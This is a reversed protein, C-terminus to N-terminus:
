PRKAGSADKLDWILATADQSGSALTRGHPGFVLATISSRHGQLRGREKGTATELVRITQDRSGFALMKGDPSFAVPGKSHGEIRWVRQGSAVDWLYIYGDAVCAAALTKGDPAFAVSPFGVVRTMNQNRPDYREGLQHLQRRHAVDWLRITNDQSGVALMRGDPSFALAMAAQGPEDLLGIKKGAAVDWIHIASFRERPFDPGTYTGVAVTTGDPSFAACSVWHPHDSLSRVKKGTTTDWLLVRKDGFGASQERRFPTAALWRGDHSLALVDGGVPLTRLHKGSSAEWLRLTQDLSGTALVRGEQVFHIFNVTARHEPFLLREAGTAVDWRRLKTEEPCAWPVGALVTQGVPLFVVNFVYSPLDIAPLQKGTATEWLRLSRDPYGPAAVLTKGDPSFALSQPPGKNGEVRRIERSAALDWLRITNDAAGFALLQWNPSFAAPYRVGSIRQIEKGTATQWIRVVPEQTALTAISTGDPSFSILQHGSLSRVEKGTSTDWLRIAFLSTALTKGDPSFSLAFVEDEHARILLRQEGTATDWVRVAGREDGYDIGSALLKGDPSLAIRRGGQFSRLEKGSAADWLRIIGDGSSALTKGDRSLAINFGNPHHLRVTGM